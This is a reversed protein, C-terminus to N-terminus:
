PGYGGTGVDLRSPHHQGEERKPGSVWTTPLLSISGQLYEGSENTAPTVRQVQTMSEQARKVRQMKVDNM